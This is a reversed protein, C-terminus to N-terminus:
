RNERIKEIIKKIRKRNFYGIIALLIIIMISSGFRPRSLLVGAGFMLVGTIKSIGKKYAPRNDEIEVNKIVNVEKEEEAEEDKGSYTVVEKEVVKEVIKEVPYKDVTAM